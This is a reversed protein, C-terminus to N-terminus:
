VSEKRYAVIYNSSLKFTLVDDVKVDPIQKEVDYYILRTVYDNEIDSWALVELSRCDFGGIESISNNVSIITARISEFRGYVSYYVFYQYKKLRGFKIGLFVFSYVVFLVCIVIIAILFPTRLPTGFPENSYILMIVVIAVLCVILSAFYFILLNRKNKKIKLYELASYLETM